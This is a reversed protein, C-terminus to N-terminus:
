GYLLKRRLMIVAIALAYLVTAIVLSQFVTNVLEADGAGGLLYDDPTEIRSGRVLLRHTNVGYPTCTVLTVTDEGSRIVLADATKDPLVVDIKDVQYTLTQGLVTIRFIDGINVKDLDSFLKSSPLGRHGSIFCNTGAGGVPLSTGQQHGAGIQLYKEEVTHYIALKVSIVPIEIYGMVGNGDVDLISMYEAMAEEDPYLRDPNSRLRDNYVYAEVLRAEIEDPAMVKIADDYGSVVKTTHRENWWNSVTPYLMLCIGAAFALGFVIEFVHKKLFGLVSGM